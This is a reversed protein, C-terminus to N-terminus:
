TMALKVLAKQDGPCEVLVERWLQAAAVHDGRETALVALNRRTLHGYIGQDISCFEEPRRLNLIHRWCAEAQAREGRHRHVVAERFWLEADEPHFSLREACVRLAAGTDGMVQHARAILVFLKRTISDSPASRALSRRLHELAQSWDEPEIASAGLNFLIFPDDPHEELEQRAIREDRALKKARLAPDTYGTHRIVLDTWTVPIGARRLAPMIQEHVCYTWRVDDRLPFLRVHDVVTEGGTGDTSPDCACRVVRATPADPELGDLLTQLKRREPPDIVDDADLWFAYDGTAHGLAENRAAAFNDIWAFDVVRAGYGEAIEKTRDTSGTDVVVIEDFIGRVSELCHPLNAEENRVILTLSVKARRSVTLAPHPTSASPEAAVSNREQGVSNDPPTPSAACHSAPVTPEQRGHGPRIISDSEPENAESRRLEAQLQHHPIWPRLAVRRCQPLAQGWNAAFRKANEHLLREADIGNGVFTRSGFHHVFLDHAVALEFGARRARIVLDNDDFFGLGFRGDLGGISEYLVRTMRLCFGSLKPVTFWKRSHQDRWRHAFTHMSELDNYPVDEVLQPPAAYNSMPGVLGVGRTVPAARWRTGPSAPAIAAPGRDGSPIFLESPMGTAGPYEGGQMAGSCEGGRSAGPWQGGQSPPSGPPEPDGGGEKNGEAEKTGKTTLDERQDEREWDKATEIKVSSLAILQDRWGDTVVVDNNLLVLFEGCAVQLGQNVAAPFGRNQKNAIITVPVRAADQVGSLYAATDDTSGNDVVILEWAPRTHRVLAQVCLQTFGRQNFCPVILSTLGTRVTPNV